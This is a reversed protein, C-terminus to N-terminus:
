RVAGRASRTIMGPDFLVISCVFSDSNSEAFYHVMVSGFNDTENTRATEARQVSSVLEFWKLVLDFMLELM